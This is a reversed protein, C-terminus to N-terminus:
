PPGLGRGLGSRGGPLRVHLHAPRPIPDGVRNTWRVQLDVRTGLLTVLAATVVDGAENPTGVLGVPALYTCLEVGPDCASPPSPGEGEGGGEGEGEARGAGEGEGEGEGEAPREGEGGGVSRNAGRSAMCSAALALAALLPLPRHLATM